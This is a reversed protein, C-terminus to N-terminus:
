KNLEFVFYWGSALGLPLIDALKVDMKGMKHGFPLAALISDSKKFSVEQFGLVSFLELIRRKTFYQCHEPGDGEVYSPKNLIKKRIINNHTIPYVFIRNKMEWPGYGNPVTVIIQSNKKMRKKINMAMKIPDILHEFVESTIVIDYQVNDNFSYANDVSVVMNGIKKEKIQNELNSVASEDVDFARIKCGLSSLPLSIGGSGCGVELVDLEDVSKNNEHAYNEITTFIFELKKLYSPNYDFDISELYNNSCSSMIVMKELKKVVM